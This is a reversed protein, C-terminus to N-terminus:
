DFDITKAARAATSEPTFEETANSYASGTHGGSILLSTNMGGGGHGPQYRRTAMAPGTSWISGNWQDLTQDLAAPAPSSGAISIASSYPGSAVANSRTFNQNPNSTWSSGNYSENALPFDPSAGPSYGACALAATQTGTGAVNRRATNMDGGSTWSSGNYEESTNQIAPVNPTEHGAFALGATQTGAAAHLYKEINLAGGESWSSGDYELTTKLPGYGTPGGPHTIGGCIAAATQTGFGAANYHALSPLNGGDSFASGNYEITKVTPNPQGGMMVAATQTGAYGGFTATQPNNTGSSFAGATTATVSVTFEETLSSNAPGPQRGGVAVSTTNSGSPSGGLNDRATALNPTATWSSGDFSFSTNKINSGDNGGFAMGATQTGSTALTFRAAPLATGATWTTGDYSQVGSTASGSNGGVLLAATQIGLSSNHVSRVATALTNGETWTSGNYEESTNEQASGNPTGGGGLGASETGAGSTQDRSTNLNGGNTWSSGDYEQTSNSATSNPSVGGGAYVGSTQTGFAGGSQRGAPLAGGAAWGSGNYEEVLTSEASVYGGVALNATQTGIGGLAQRATILASGSHWAAAAVFSKLKFDTSNYFLEGEQIRDGSTDASLYKIKLGKLEEYTSM